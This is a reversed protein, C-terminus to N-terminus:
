KNLSRRIPFEDTPFAEPPPPRVAGINDQTVKDPLRQQYGPRKRGDIIGSDPDALPDGKPEEPLPAKAELPPAKVAREAAASSALFVGLSAFPNYIGVAAVTSIPPLDAVVM